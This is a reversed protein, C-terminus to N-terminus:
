PGGYFYLYLSLVLIDGYSDSEDYGLGFEIDSAARVPALLRLSYSHTISGAVAGKWRAADVTIRSSGIDIGVGIIARYDVLSNILSLRSVTLFNAIDRRGARGLDVSYDYGIGSAHISVKDGLNLGASLGIGHADFHFERDAFLDTAPLELKFDRYRYDVGFSGRAGRAFVSALVDASDLLRDDGWYAAGLRVGLPDFFHEIAADLYWTEISERIDLDVSSRAVGGSLWTKPVIETSAFMTAAVGDGSDTEVGGGILYAGAWSNGFALLFPLCRFWCM